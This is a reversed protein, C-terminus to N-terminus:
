RRRKRRPNARANFNGRVREKTSLDYVAVVRVLAGKRLTVEKEEPRTMNAILTVEWNVDAPAVHAEIMFTTTDRAPHARGGWYPEAAYEDWTWYVGLEHMRLTDVGGVDALAVARFIRIPTTFKQVELAFDAYVVDGLYDWVAEELEEDEPPEEGREEAWEQVREKADFFANGEEIDVAANERLWAMSPLNDSMDVTSPNRRRPNMRIDPNTPDFNGSNPTAFSLAKGDIRSRMEDLVASKAQRPDFWAYVTALGMGGSGLYDDVSNLIIIGDHGDRYAQHVYHETKRWRTGRADVVMPNQISVFLPIVGPESNQYDLVGKPTYTNAVGYVDTAFFARPSRFTTMGGFVHRIDPSGHYVVLPEGSESVVKSDRFWRKFAPTAVLAAHRPDLVPPATRVRRTRRPNARAERERASVLEGDGDYIAIIKVPAGPKLRIEREVDGWMNLALTIPWDVDEPNVVGVLIKLDEEEATSKWAGMYERAYRPDYTWFVGVGDTRLAPLSAVSIGRFLVLPDTFKRAQKRFEAYMSKKTPEHAWALDIPFAQEFLDGIEPDRPSGEAVMRKVEAWTRPFFRRVVEGSGEMKHSRLGRSVRPAGEFRRAKSRPNERHPRRM